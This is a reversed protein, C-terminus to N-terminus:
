RTEGRWAIIHYDHGEHSGRPQYDFGHERLIEMVQGAQHADAAEMVVMLRDHKALKPLTAKVRTFDDSGIVPGLHITITGLM